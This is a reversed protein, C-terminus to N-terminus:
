FLSNDDDKCAAEKGPLTATIQEPKQYDTFTNRNKLVSFMVEGCKGVERNKEIRLRAMLSEDGKKKEPREVIMYNDCEQAISSSGKSANIGLKAPKGSRTDDTMHPHVNIMIHCDYDDCWQHIMRM